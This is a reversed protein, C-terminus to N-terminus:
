VKAGAFRLTGIELLPRADDDVLLTRQGIGRVPSGDGGRWDTSRGLM